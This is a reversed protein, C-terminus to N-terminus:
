YVPTLSTGPLQTFLEYGLLGAPTHYGPEINNQLFHRTIHVSALATLKYGEPGELRVELRNGHEDIVEGWVLSRGKENQEPTPGTVNKEIYNRFRNKVWETRLIPNVLPALKTMRYSSKSVATYTEINPIGTTTYATSIDGWPITMCFRTKTGFNVRRAKHGIPKPIIKGDHRVAGSSGLNEVMTLLTGHSVSGGVSAFALKLNKASPLKAKLYKAACDTPVVDFGVGSMLGVGGSKAARDYSKVLEFVPIEGTIDLYHVGNRICAEVLPKATHIFPGACNLLVQFGNLSKDIDHPDDLGFVLFPLGYKGALAEIKQHNRGALVPKLGQKMSEEIVLGATYGTAGYLLYKM